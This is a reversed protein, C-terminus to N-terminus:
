DSNLKSLLNSVSSFDESKLEFFFQEMFAWVQKSNHSYHIKFVYSLKIIYEMCKMYTCCRWKIGDCYIFYESINAYDSGVVIIKPQLTEKKAAYEEKLQSLKPQVDNPTTVLTIFDAQGDAITPKTTKNLRQPQLLAHLM